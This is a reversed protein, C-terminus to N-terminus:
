DGYGVTTVTTAAWWLADGVNPLNAGTADREADLVALARRAFSALSALSALASGVVYTRVRGALGGALGRDLLRVLALLHPLRLPRLMPLTIVAVDYRHKVAYQKRADALVLRVVFDAAFAAWVTWSVSVLVAVVFAVALLLLPVETRAERRGVRDHSM